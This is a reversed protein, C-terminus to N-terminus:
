PTERLYLTVANAGAHLAVWEPEAGSVQDPGTSYAFVRVTTPMLNSFTAAPVDSEIMADVTRSEHTINPRFLGIHLADVQFPREGAEDIEVKRWIAPTTSTDLAKVHVTLSTEPLLSLLNLTRDENEWGTGGVAGDAGLTRIKEIPAHIAAPSDDALLAQWAHGFGDFYLAEAPDNIATLYPGNWGGRLTVSTPVGDPPPDDPWPIPDLTMDGYGVEGADRWLEELEEGETESFRMPLRGMDRHGM